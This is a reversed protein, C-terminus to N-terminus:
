FQYGFAEIDAAYVEAIKAQMQASYHPRYDVGSGANRRQPEVEIGLRSCVQAIDDDFRETRGIFDARRGDLTLYDIQPTRLRGYKEPGELVFAEFDPLSDIVGTWFKHRAVRDTLLPNAGSAAGEGRRQIMTFWSYMRAWPNRVFGFTWYDAFEPHAAVAKTWTTHRGWQLGGVPEAGPLGALLMQDASSGGTKQVHVFLVRRSHSVIM